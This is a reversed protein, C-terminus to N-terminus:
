LEQRRFALWALGIAVLAIAANAVVAGAADPAPQGLALARAPIALAEPTYTGVTPLVSVIGTLVM